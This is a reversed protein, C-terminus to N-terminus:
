VGTPTSLLWLGFVTYGVMLAALPLQSLAARRASGYAREAMAHALIVSWVHGIVVAGAQLDWILEVSEMDSQFGATVYLDAVGFLDAGIGLPDNFALLAYQANLLLVTLYHSFHFALSIPVLSLVFGGVHRKLGGADLREGALLAGLLVALGYGGALVTIAAFLGLTNEAMVASRGPFELPNVGVTGLFWFTKNLGDFSVTALATLVFLAASPSLTPEALAKAGPPVLRPGGREGRALPALLSIYRFFLSLSEGRARWDREGFLLMGAANLLWYLAVAGALREPDDPAVGVLEFWAIAVLGLIAPACGVWGPLTLPGPGDAPAGAAARLLRVPGSWPNLAAWLDGFLAHALTLAIWLITWVYIPLPNLYPDRSGVLGCVVLFVLLAFSALSAGARWDLAPAIPALRLGGGGAFLRGLRGVPALLLVLFTAAVTLAGGVVYYGTPLLMVLGREAAHAQAESPGLALLLAAGSAATGAQRLRRRM